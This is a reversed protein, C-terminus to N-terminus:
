FTWVDYEESTHPRDVPPERSKKQRFRPNGLKAKGHTRKGLNSPKSIDMPTPKKKISPMIIRPKVKRISPMFAQPKQTSTSPESGWFEFQEQEPEPEEQITELPPPEPTLQPTPQQPPIIPTKVPFRSAISTRKINRHVTRSELHRKLDHKRTFRHGCTLCDFTSPGALKFEGLTQRLGRPQLTPIRRQFRVDQEQLAQTHAFTEAPPRTIIQTPPLNSRVQQLASQLQPKNIFTTPTKKTQLSPRYFLSPIIAGETTEQPCPNRLPNPNTQIIQQPAVFEEVEEPILEQAIQEEPVFQEEEPIDQPITEEVVEPPIDPPIGVEEGAIDGIIREAPTQPEVEGELVNLQETALKDKEDICNLLKQYVGPTVLLMKQYASVARSKRM